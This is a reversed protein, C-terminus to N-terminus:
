PTTAAVADREIRDPPALDAPRRVFDKTRHFPSWIFQAWYGEALDIWQRLQETSGFFKDTSVMLWSQVAQSDRCDKCHGSTCCFNITKLDPAYANFLPLTKNGNEQRSAHAPHDASISPCVDYGFRGWHSEGTIMAHIYVPTSLVTEPYLAAVRCAENELKAADELRTPDDSGYSSYFNFTVVNGNDRIRRVTPEIHQIGRENLAYVWFVRPDDKYNALATAFLGSFRRGSPEIARLQDDLSGGGFLTCGISVNEFGEKPLVKRGNTSVTVNTMGEVYVRVRDPVLTPEGGILLASNVQRARESAIFARLAGLDREDKTRKDFDHAFFWCGECRINCGNTVHYESTRVTRSFSKIADLRPGLEPAEALLDPLKRTTARHSGNELTDM